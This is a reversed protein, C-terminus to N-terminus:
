LARVGGWGKQYAKSPLGQGLHRKVRFSERDWVDPLECKGSMGCFSGKTPIMFHSVRARHMKPRLTTKYGPVCLASAKWDSM